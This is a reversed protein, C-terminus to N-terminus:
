SRTRSVLLFRRPKLGSPAATRSTHRRTGHRAMNCLQGYQMHSWIACTVMNCVHGYQVPTISLEMDAAQTFVPVLVVVLERSAIPGWGCGGVVVWLLRCCGVVVWLWGRGHVIM